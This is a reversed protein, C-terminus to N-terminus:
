QGALFRVSCPLLCSECASADRLLTSPDLRDGAKLGLEEIDQTIARGLTADSYDLSNAIRQKTQVTSVTITITHQQIQHRHDIADFTAWPGEDVSVNCFGSLSQMQAKSM